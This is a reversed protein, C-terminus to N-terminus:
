ARGRKKTDKIGKKEMERTCDPCYWSSKPDPPEKLGVCGYHFWEIKCDPNDCGVMNGFSVQRCICYIEDEGEAGTGTDLGANALIAHVADNKDKRNKPTSTTSSADGGEKLNIPPGIGPSVLRISPKAAKQTGSTPTAAASTAASAAAAGSLKQRKTPRASGTSLTTSESPTPASALGSVAGVGAASVPTSGRTGPAPSGLKQTRSLGASSVGSLDSVFHELITAADM